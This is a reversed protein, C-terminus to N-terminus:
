QYIKNLEKEIKAQEKAQKAKEKELEKELKEQEKLAKAEEKARKKELKAAEKDDEATINESIEEEQVQEAPVSEVVEEVVETKQPQTTDEIVTQEVTEPIVEPEAKPPTSIQIEQKTQKKVAGNKQLSLATDLKNYFEEYFEADDVDDIFQANGYENLLKRKFNIRIKTNDPYPTVNAVFELTAVKVGNYSLRSKTLGFEKSIDVNPDTTDFDKVGYIFGLVSNVNYVIYGEDQLVNLVGKMLSTETNASFTRTQFQRKQLQAMPTIIEESQRKACVPLAICLVFLAALIKKYM